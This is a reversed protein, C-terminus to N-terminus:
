ATMTSSSFILTPAIHPGCLFSSRLKGKEREGERERMEKERMEREDRERMERKDRERMERMERM